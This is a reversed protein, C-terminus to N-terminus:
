PAPLIMRGSQELLDATECLPLGMVGSYSGQINTIFIAALGQIAYSGAKDYAEDTKLYRHIEQETINRFTVLNRSISTLIGSSAVALGTLVEHSKGSLLRLMTTAEEVSGPKGLIKDQCVVATDAAVIIDITAHKKTSQWNSLSNKHTNSYSKDLQKQAAEAKAMALRLVYDEATESALVDETIDPRIISPQIGIQNLLEKRRPSQSALYVTPQTM